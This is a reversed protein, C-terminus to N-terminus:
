VRTWPFRQEPRTSRSRSWQYLSVPCVSPAQKTFCGIYTWFLVCCTRKWDASIMKMQQRISGPTPPDVADRSERRPWTRSCRGLHLTRSWDISTDDIRLQETM